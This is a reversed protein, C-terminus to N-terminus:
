LLGVILVEVMVAGGPLVVGDAVDREGVEAALFEVDGFLFHRAEDGDALFVGGVFGEFANADDTRQM